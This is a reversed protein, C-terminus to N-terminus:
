RVNDSRSGQPLRLFSPWAWRRSNQCQPGDRTYIHSHGLRMQTQHVSINHIWCALDWWWSLCCSSQWRGCHHGPLGCHTWPLRSLQPFLYTTQPSMSVKTQFIKPYVYVNYLGGLYQCAIALHFCALAAYWGGGVNVKSLQKEAGHSSM